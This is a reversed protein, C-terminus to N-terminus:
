VSMRAGISPRSPARSTSIPLKTRAVSLVASTVIVWILGIKTLKVRGCFSSSASGAAAPSRRRQLDIASALSPSVSSPSPLSVSISLMISWVVPVIWRFAVNALRILPQPGPLEDIHPQDQPHPVVDGRHRRLRHLLARVAVVGIDDALVVRHFPAVHSTAATCFPRATTSCPATAPRAPRRRRVIGASRRRAHGAAAPSLRRDPPSLRRFAAMLMESGKMRRGIAVESSISPTRTNPM